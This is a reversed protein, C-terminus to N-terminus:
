RSANIPPPAETSQQWHAPVFHWKDGIREWQDAVRQMHRREVVFSGDVWYYAKGSWTWHGPSWVYGDRPPPAHEARRPPPPADAYVDAAFGPSTLTIQAAAVFIAAIWATHATNM